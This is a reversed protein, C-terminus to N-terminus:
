FDHAPHAGLIFIAQLEIYKQSDGFKDVLYNFHHNYVLRFTSFESPKYTITPVLSLDFNKSTAGTADPLAINTFYDVRVGAFINEGFYYQPFVYFGMARKTGGGRPSEIRYWFESQLFFQLMTNEKFKSTLDVGLLTM